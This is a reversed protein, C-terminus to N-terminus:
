SMLNEGFLTQQSTSPAPPEVATGDTQHSKLSRGKSDVWVTRGNYNTGALVSAAASPSAFVYDRTLELHDRGLKVLTGDEVLLDRVRQYSRSLMKAQAEARSGKRVLFGDSHELGRCMHGEKRKLSYEVADAAVPAHVALEELCTVGLVGMLLTVDALLRDFGAQAEPSPPRPSPKPGNDAVAQASDHVRRILRAELDAVHDMTFGNSHHFIAFGQTWFNKRRQHEDLRSTLTRTALGVYVRQKDPQAEDPGQLLYVGMGSLETMNRATPYDARSFAICACPREVGSAIRIGNTRGEVLTVQILEKSPM